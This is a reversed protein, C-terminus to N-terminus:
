VCSIKDLDVYDITFRTGDDLGIYGPYQGHGCCSGATHLGAKNFAEVYPAICKDIPKLAWRFKGTYSADASIPVNLIITDGHKCM